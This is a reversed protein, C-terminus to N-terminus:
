AAATWNAAFAAAQGDIYGDIRVVPVDITRYARGRRVDLVVPTAGAHIIDMHQGMLRLLTAATEPQPPIQDFWLYTAEVTGDDRRIGLHPNLNITLGARSITAHRVKQELCASADPMGPLPTAGSSDRRDAM